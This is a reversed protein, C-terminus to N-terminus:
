IVNGDLYKTTFNLWRNYEENTLYQRLRNKIDISLEIYENSNLLKKEILDALKDFLDELESNMEIKQIIDELGKQAIEFRKRNIFSKVSNYGHILGLTLIFNSLLSEVFSENYKKIYKM